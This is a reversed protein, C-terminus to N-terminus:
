VTVETILCAFSGNWEITDCTNVLQQSLCTLCTVTNACEELLPSIPLFVSGGLASLLLAWKMNHDRATAYGFKYPHALFM